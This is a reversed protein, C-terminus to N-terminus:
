ATLLSCGRLDSGDMRGLMEFQGNAYVKGADETAIFCCSDINALDIINLAGNGSKKVTLPDEEDRVLVKMWPPCEFIGLGLSWAQSLLETMGYEAGIARVGFASQLIDHVEARVLERGRGKMGGTEIIQTHKLPIPNTAAFDLLAFTVGILLTPQGQKELDLLVDRLRATDNLYFGSQPHGSERILTDTMYVLSSNKRELYSPLLGIICWNKIPGKFRIFGSMFSQLYLAPDKLYHKSTVMGTTASSEFCLAPTFSGTKVEHTKFFSIPLFPIKEIRDVKHSDTGLAQVFERYVPNQHAQYQFAELALAEFNIEKNAFIKGEWQERIFVSRDM